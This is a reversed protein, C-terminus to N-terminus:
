RVEGALPATYGDAHRGKTSGVGYQRTAPTAVLILMGTATTYAGTDIATALVRSWSVSTVGQADVVARLLVGSAAAGFAIAAHRAWAPVTIGM